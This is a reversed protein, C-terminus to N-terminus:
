EVLNYTFVYHHKGGRQEITMTGSLSTLEGSGSEPVVELILRSQGRDMIGFHQLAFTGFKGALVGSVQEIAVYGASGQVDTVVSLMEGQSTGELDGSFTKDISMRNFRIGGGGQAYSDLPQLNVEFTGVAQMANRRSKNAKWYLLQCDDHQSTSLTVIVLFCRWHLSHGASKEVSWDGM